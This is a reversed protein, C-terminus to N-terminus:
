KSLLLSDNDLTGNSLENFKKILDEKTLSAKEKGKVDLIIVGDNMMILRNGHDIADQMNHTIMLTTLNNENVLQDTLDLVKTATSPD